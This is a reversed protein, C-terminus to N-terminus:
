SSQNKIRVPYNMADDLFKKYQTFIKPDKKANFNFKLKLKNYLDPNNDKMMEAFDFLSLEKFNALVIKNKDLMKIIQDNTREMMEKKVEPNKDAIHNMAFALHIPAISDKNKIFLKINNSSSGILDSLLDYRGTLIAYNLASNGYMDKNQVYSKKQVEALYKIIKNQNEISINPELSYSKDSPVYTKILDISAKEEKKDLKEERTHHILMFSFYDMGTSKEKFSLLDTKKNEFLKLMELNKSLFFPPLKSANKYLNINYCYSKLLSSVVSLDDSLVAFNLVNYDKEKAQMCRVDPKIYIDAQNQAHVSMLSGTFLSLALTIKAFKNM